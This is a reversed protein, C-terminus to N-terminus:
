MPLLLASREWVQSHGRPKTTRPKKEELKGETQIPLSRPIDGTSTSPPLLDGLVPLSRPQLVRLIKQTENLFPIPCVAQLQLPFSQPKEPNNQELDAEEPSNLKGPSSTGSGHSPNSGLEWHQCDQGQRPSPFKGEWAGAPFERQM